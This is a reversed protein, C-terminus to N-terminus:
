LEIACPGTLVFAAFLAATPVLHTGPNAFVVKNKDKAGIQM